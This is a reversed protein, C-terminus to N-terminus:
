NSKPHVLNKAVLLVKVIAGAKALISTDEVSVHDACEQSPLLDPHTNPREIDDDYDEGIGMLRDRVNYFLIGQLAKTNIDVWIHGTPCYQIVIEGKGIRDKIM